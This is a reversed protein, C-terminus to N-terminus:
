SKAPFDKRFRHVAQGAILFDRCLQVMIVCGSKGLASRHLAQTTVPFAICPWVPDVCLWAQVVIGSKRLSSNVCRRSHLLFKSVDGVPDLCRRHSRGVCGPNERCRGQADLSGRMVTLFWSQTDFISVFGRVTHFSVICRIHRM